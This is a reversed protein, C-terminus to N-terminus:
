FGKISAVKNMQGHILPLNGRGWQLTDTHVQMLKKEEAEQIMEMCHALKNLRLPHKFSKIIELIEDSIKKFTETIEHVLQRYLDFQYNPSSKLYAQFGRFFQDNVLMM